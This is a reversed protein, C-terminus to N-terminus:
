DSLSPTKVDFYPQHTLQKLDHGNEDMSWLNMVGDRDSAFYIRGKYPMPERSTGTYDATLPQAEAGHSAYRWISQATGGHYRKTFSGQFPFRTFFLTGSADYAGDAAQALPVLGHARTAPNVWGLEMDPLTSYDRTAYLVRADPTWGVVTAVSGEYTLRTPPGGDIPMVYVETPGEYSASFAVQKGDPSIAANTEEGLATTLRQATGGSVPVRWLDGEATFVVTNGSIAPFRYYGLGPQQAGLGAAALTLACIFVRIRM